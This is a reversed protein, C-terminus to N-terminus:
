RILPAFFWQFHSQTIMKKKGIIKVIKNFIWSIFTSTFSAVILGVCHSSNRADVQSEGTYCWAPWVVPSETDLERMREAVRPCRWETRGSTATLIDLKAIQHRGGGSRFSKPEVQRSDCSFGRRRKSSEEPSVVQQAASHADWLPSLRRDQKSAERSPQPRVEARVCTTPTRTISVTCTCTFSESLCILDKSSDESHGREPQTASLARLVRWWSTERKAERDDDYTRYRARRSCHRTEGHAAISVRTNCPFTDSVRSSDRVLHWPFTLSTGGVNSM